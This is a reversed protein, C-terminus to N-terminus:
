IVEIQASLAVIDMEKPEIQKRLEVIKYDLVFKFKELEQNKKRLDLIRKDKELMTDEREQIQNNSFIYLIVEKKLGQIDIEMSKIIHLIRKDEQNMKLIEEKNNEILRALADYEARM